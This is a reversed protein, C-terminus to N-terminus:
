GCVYRELQGDRRLWRLLRECRRRSQVLAAVPGPPGQQGPPTPRSPPDNPPPHITASPCPAAPPPPPPLPATHLPDHSVCYYRGVACASTGPEDSGDACDCYDDNVQSWDLELKGDCTFNPLSASDYRSFLSLPVGRTEQSAGAGVTALLVCALLWPPLRRGKCAAMVSLVAQM